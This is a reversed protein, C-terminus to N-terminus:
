KGVEDGTTCGRKSGCEGGWRGGKGEIAGRRGPGGGGRRGGGVVEDGALDSWNVGRKSGCQERTGGGKNEGEQGGM